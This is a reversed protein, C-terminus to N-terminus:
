LAVVQEFFVEAQRRPGVLLPHNLPDHAVRPGVEKHRHRLNAIQLIEVALQPLCALTIQLTFQAPFLRHFFIEQGFLAGGHQRDGRIGKFRAAFEGGAGTAKRQHTEVAVVIRHRNAAGVMRHHHFPGAALHHDETPALLHGPVPAQPIFLLNTELWHVVQRQQLFFRASQVESTRKGPPLQGFAQVDEPAPEFALAPAFTGPLIDLHQPQQFFM